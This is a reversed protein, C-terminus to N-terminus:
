NPLNDMWNPNQQSRDVGGTANLEQAPIPYAFNALVFNPKNNITAAAGTRRLDQFRHGEQFLERIREDAIFTLLAAKTNPLDSVSTIASNRKATYLLATQADAVTGTASAAEAEAIILYMESVRFVPVNNVAEASGIGAFKLPRRNATFFDKRIDTAAFKAIAFDSCKGGYSNYLTNLSNASLNDSESKALTFIDEGTIAISKWMSMYTDNNVPSAGKGTIASNAAAKAGAYDQMYLKVRAELAYIAAENMYFEDISGKQSVSLKNMYEHASQIDALIAAYCEAVTARTTVAFLEIPADKVLVVGMQDNATGAKYPLGYINTLVFTSLAKLAYMQAIAGNVIAEDSNNLYFGSAILDKAGNIGRVARDITTYGGTWIDLLIGEAETIAWTHMAIFHGTSPDAVSVDSCMDGLATANRGLFNNYALSRYVGHLGNEIDSVNTFADETPILTFPKTEMDCSSIGSLILVGLSLYLLIKKM